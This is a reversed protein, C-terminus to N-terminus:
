NTVVKNLVLKRFDDRTFFNGDTRDIFSWEGSRALDACEAAAERSAGETGFLGSLYTSELAGNDM